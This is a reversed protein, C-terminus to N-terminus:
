YFNFVKFTYVHCFYNHVISPQCLNSLLNDKGRGIGAGSVLNEGDFKIMKIRGGVISNKEYIHFEHNMIKMLLGIYLGSIGSGIIAVKM